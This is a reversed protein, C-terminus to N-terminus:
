RATFQTSLVKDMSFKRIIFSVVLASGAIGTMMIFVFHFGKMYAELIATKEPGVPTTRLIYVWRESDHAIVAPLGAAALHSSMANQFITGALAVGFPMGLSRFFGYMSAAMSCDEPRSIAQIGVNVSTLVMGTGIGFVALISYLVTNSTHIDFLLLLGCALTTVAWGGWIAWRFRGLRSTIISVIISGPVLLCMAPLLDKGANTPTQGRVSM